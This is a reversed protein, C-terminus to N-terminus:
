TPEKNLMDAVLKVADTGNFIGRGTGCRAGRDGRSFM